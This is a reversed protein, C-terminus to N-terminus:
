SSSGSRTRPSYAMPSTTARWCAACTSGGSALRRAAVTALIGLIGVALLGLLLWPGTDTLAKVAATWWTANPPLTLSGSALYGAGLVLWVAVVRM